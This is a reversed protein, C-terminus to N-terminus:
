FPIILKATPMDGVFLFCHKHVLKKFYELSVVFIKCQTSKRKGKRIQKKIKFAPISGLTKPISLFYDVESSCGLGQCLIRIWTFKCESSLM